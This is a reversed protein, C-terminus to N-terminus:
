ESMEYDKYYCWHKGDGVVYGGMQSSYHVQFMYGNYGKEQEFDPDCIYTQGDIHIEVWSHPARRNAFYTSYVSGTVQRADYGLLRALRTFTAAMVYCNGVRYSLGYNAFWETGSAPNENMERYPLISLNYATRLTAQYGGNNDLLAAGLRESATSSSTILYHTRVTAVPSFNGYSAGTGDYRFARVKFKYETSSKLGEVRYTTANGNRITAIKVYSGNKYQYIQYGNSKVKNWNLRIADTAKATSTITVVSPMTSATKKASLEGYIVEGGVIRFSQVKYHYQGGAVLGNSDRWTFTNEGVKGLRVYKKGNYRYIIYGTAGYAKNWNIRIADSTRTYSSKIVATAPKVHAVLLSSKPGDYDKGNYTIFAQVRYKYERGSTLGSDRYTVTGAGYVTAAKETKKTHTDYRWIKYGTAGTVKNWNVRIADTANTYNSKIEVKAPTTVTTVVNSFAAYYFTGIPQETFAQVKYRYYTASKIGANRFTTTSGNFVRGAVVWNNSNGEARFIKYGTAGEVKTWNVRVADECYGFETKVTTAPPVIKFTTEASGSYGNRLTVTVKATGINVNNQYDVYYHDSTLVEGNEDTVTVTPRIASGTYTVDDIAGVTPTIKITGSSDSDADTDSVESTAAESAATESTTTEYSSDDASVGMAGIASAGLLMTAFALATIIKRKMAYGKRIIKKHKFVCM